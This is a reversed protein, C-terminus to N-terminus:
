TKNAYQEKNIVNSTEIHMEADQYQQQTISDTIVVGCRLLM